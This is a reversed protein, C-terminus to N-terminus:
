LRVATSATPSGVSTGGPPGEHRAAPCDCVPLGLCEGTRCPSGIGGRVPRGSDWQGWGRGRLPRASHTPCAQAPPLPYLHPTPCSNDMGSCGGLSGRDGLGMGVFGNEFPEHGGQILDEDGM